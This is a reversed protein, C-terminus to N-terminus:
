STVTNSLVIKIKSNVRLAKFIDNEAKPTAPSSGINHHKQHHKQTPVGERVAKLVTGKNQIKSRSTDHLPEESSM